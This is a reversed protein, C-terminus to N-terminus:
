RRRRQRRLRGAARAAGSDAARSPAGDGWSVHAAAFRTWEDDDARAEATLREYYEVTAEALARHAELRSAQRLWREIVGSRTSGPIRGAERDISAVLDPPLTISLKAKAM